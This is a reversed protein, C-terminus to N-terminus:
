AMIPKHSARRISYQKHIDAIVDPRTICLVDNDGKLPHDHNKFKEGRFDEETLGVKQILSGMAGDLLLVRHRLIDRINISIM